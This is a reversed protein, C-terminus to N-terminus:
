CLGAVLPTPNVAGGGGPHHEFHLHPVWDPANGTTGVYGILQGATVAQGAYLGEAYGNLHAYFFEDGSAGNLYIQIGGLSSTSLRAITGAEIAVLPTGLAALMDVGQHSRGGSRPAGWTDTFVVPGAVPCVRGSPSPEPAPPPATTPTTGESGDGGAGGDAGGAVTTTTTSTAAREAARRAAEEARRREEAARRAAEQAAYRTELEELVERRAELEEALAVGIAELEAVTEAQRRLLDQVDGRRDELRALAADRDDLLVADTDTLESLYAEHAIRAGWPEVTIQLRVDSRGSMYMDVARLRIAEETAAVAKEAAAVDAELGTLQDGLQAERAWAEQFATAQQQLDENADFLQRRAEAIDEPTIQEDQAIVPLATLIVALM